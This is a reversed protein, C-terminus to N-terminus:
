SDKESIIGQVWWEYSILLAVIIIIFIITIEPDNLGSTQKSVYKCSRSIVDSSIAHWSLQLRTHYDQRTTIYNACLTSSTQMVYIATM